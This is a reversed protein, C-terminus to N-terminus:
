KNNIEQAQLIIQNMSPTKVHLKAITSLYKIHKM